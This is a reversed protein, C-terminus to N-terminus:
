LLREVGLADVRMERLLWEITEAVREAYLPKKTEQWASTLRVVFQANDYSMKEFPPALWIADTSYRAFGGGLHDYIGGDSMRDLTTLVAVKLEPDGSRKSQRWLLEFVACQPFKPAGSLGGHDRDVHGLYHHAVREIVAPAIRKAGARNESLQALAGKLPDVNARVKDGETRHIAAIRELVRTFGPRGYRDEPPFYTGGWFPEGEATLFMTLPWGGHEGLLGLQNQYLADVDPREERDVKINVFLDNMLRATDEDEFSEHAMVHCWHCASYGISLLVPKNETRAKAFAEDSWPYWDVPNHAHQLLYPSSENILHNTFEAQEM